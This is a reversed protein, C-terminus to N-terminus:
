VPCEMEKERERELPPSIFTMEPIHAFMHVTSLRLTIRVPDVFDFPPLPPADM